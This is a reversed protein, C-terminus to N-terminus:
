SLHQRDTKSKECSLRRHTSIYFKLAAGDGHWFARLITGHSGLTGNKTNLDQISDVIYEPTWEFSRAVVKGTAKDVVWGRYPLVDDAPKIRKWNKMDAYHILQPDENEDSLYLHEPVTAFQTATEISVPAFRTNM